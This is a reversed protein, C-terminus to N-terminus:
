FADDLGSLDRGGHRIRDFVVMDGIRELDDYLRDLDDQAEPWVIIRDTVVPRAPPM